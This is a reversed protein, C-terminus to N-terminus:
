CYIAKYDDETREYFVESIKGNLFVPLMEDFGDILKDSKVLESLPYWFIEGENSAKLEGTYKDTIYLFVIYRKGDQLKHFEKIGCLRPEEIILGTEEQIERIVSPTVYEGKEVHGGPFNWGCWDPHNVKNQVLVKGEGDCIMCMNTLEVEEVRSM